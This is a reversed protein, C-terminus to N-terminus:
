QSKEMFINQSTEGKFLGEPGLTKRVLFAAQKLGMSAHASIQSNQMERLVSLPDLICTKM